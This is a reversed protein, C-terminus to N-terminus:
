QLCRVFLAIFAAAMPLAFLTSLQALRLERHPLRGRAVSLLDAGGCVAAVIANAVTSRFRVPPWNLRPLGASQGALLPNPPNCQGTM